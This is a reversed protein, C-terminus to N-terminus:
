VTKLCGHGFGSQGALELDDVGVGRAFGGAANQITKRIRAGSREGFAKFMEAAAVVV